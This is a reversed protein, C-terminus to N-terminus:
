WGVGVGESCTAQELHMGFRCMKEHRSQREMVAKREVKEKKRSSLKIYTALLRASIQGILQALTARATSM